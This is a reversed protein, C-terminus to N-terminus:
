PTNENQACLYRGDPSFLFLEDSIKSANQLEQSQRGTKLDWVRLTGREPGWDTSLLSGDHTALLRGDPSLAVSHENEALALSLRPNPAIVMNAAAITLPLLLVMGLRFAWKRVASTAPSMARGGSRM